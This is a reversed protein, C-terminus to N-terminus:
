LSTSTGVDSQKCRKHPLVAWGATVNLACEKMNHFSIQASGEGKGGVFLRTGM